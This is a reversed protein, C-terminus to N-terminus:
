QPAASTPAARMERRARIRRRGQALYDAARNEDHLQGKAVQALRRFPAAFHPDLRACAEFAAIAEIPRDMGTLAVGLHYHARAFQSDSEVASLAWDAAEEFSGQCLRVSAMGDLARVDAENQALAREFAAGADDYRGRRLQVLGHLTHVGVLQPDVYSAYDLLELATAFDRGNMAMVATMLSLRPTEVAHHELWILEPQADRWRGAQFHVEALAQHPAIWSPDDVKLRELQAIVEAARGQKHAALAQQLEADLQSRLASERLALEQPDAYGLEVLHPVADLQNTAQNV